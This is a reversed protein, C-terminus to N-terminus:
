AATKTGTRRQPNLSRSVRSRVSQLARKLHLAAVFLAGRLTLAATLSTVSGFRNCWVKKYTEDGFRFDCSLGREFAWRIMDEDLQQGPSYKSWEPDYTKILPEVRTPTIAALTAAVVSGGITIRFLRVRSTEDKNSAVQCRLFGVYDPRALWANNKGTIEMWRYKYRLLWDMTEASKEDDDLLEFRFEGQKALKRRRRRHDNLHRPKMIGALYIHWDDIEEWSVWSKEEIRSFRSGKLVPLANGLSTDIPTYPLRILDAGSRLSVFELARQVWGVENPGPACLVLSYESGEHGLPSIIRCGFSTSKVMPWILVVQGASRGIVCFLQRSRKSAVERWSLECWTFSQSAYPDRVKGWLANWDPELQVLDDFECIIDFEINEAHGKM